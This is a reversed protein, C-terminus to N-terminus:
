FINILMKVLTTLMKQFFNILIKHILMKKRFHRTLLKKSFTSGVNNLFRYVLMYM